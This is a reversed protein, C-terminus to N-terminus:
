KSLAMQYAQGKLLHTRLYTNSSKRYFEKAFPDVKGSALFDPRIVIRPYPRKGSMDLEMELEEFREM